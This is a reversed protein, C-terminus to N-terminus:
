DWELLRREGELERLHTADQSVELTGLFTGEDNRVAFYRIHIFRGKMQIWFEADDQEGAEFTRLIEKVMHVSKPPHCNEVHRGIAAPSRPFVREPTESYYRVHGSADVFSLDVPLHRFIQDVQELTLRGTGLSLLGDSPLDPADASTPPGETAADPTRARDAGAAPALDPGPPHGARGEASHDPGPASPTRAIPLSVGPGPFDAEPEAFAYGLEDDGAKVEAWEDRSLTQVALPFLIKNEKYVMEVLSRALTRAKGAVDTATAGAGNGGTELAKRAAKLEGRIEDHVGWM